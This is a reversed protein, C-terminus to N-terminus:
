PDFELDALAAFAEEILAVPDEAGDGRAWHAIAAAVASAAAMAIVRLRLGAAGGEREALTEAFLEVTADINRWQGARLAPTSLTLRARTLIAERDTTLVERLGARLARHLATLPAEGAPRSRILEAIMPDYDDTEVVAEKSAFYRFFTMHSVGAATAIQEVTTAEYGQETFLRLAHQQIERRTRAKRQERLGTRGGDRPVQSM